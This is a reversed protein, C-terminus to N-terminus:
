SRSATAGRRRQWAAAGAGAALLAVLVAALIVPLPSGGSHHGAPLAAADVIPPTSPSGAASPAAAGSSSASGHPRPAPRGSSSSGPVGSATAATVAGSRFTTAPAGPASTAPGPAHTTPVGTTAGTKTPDPSSTAAVTASTARLEGILAPSPSPDSTSGFVWLEVEGAVPHDTTVGDPSLTWSAAGPEALWYSWSASAPPTQDCPDATPYAAGGGVAANGLRCIFALGYQRTGVPTFGGDELLTLGSSDPAGSSTVGCGRVLPGGFHAFDVAVISGRTTSCQGIAAARAPVGALVPVIAGVLLAAALLARRV